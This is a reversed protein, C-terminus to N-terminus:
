LEESRNRARSEEEFEMLSCFCCPLCALVAWVLYRAFSPRFHSLPTVLHTTAPGTVLPARVDHVAYVVDYRGVDVIGEVVVERLGQGGLILIDGGMFGGNDTVMFYNPYKLNFQESVLIHHTIPVHASQKPSPAIYHPFTIDQSPRNYDTELIFLHISEISRCPPAHSIPLPLDPLKSPYIYSQQHTGHIIPRLIEAEFASYNGSARFTEYVHAPKDVLVQKSVDLQGSSEM